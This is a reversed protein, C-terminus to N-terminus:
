VGIVGVQDENCALKEILSHGRSLTQNPSSDRVFLLM